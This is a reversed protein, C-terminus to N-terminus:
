PHQLNEHDGRPLVDVVSYTGGFGSPCCSRGVFRFDFVEDQKKGIISHFISKNQVIFYAKNNTYKQSNDFIIFHLPPSCVSRRCALNRDPSPM